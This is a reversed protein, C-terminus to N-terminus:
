NQLSCQPNSKGDNSRIQQEAELFVFISRVLLVVNFGLM